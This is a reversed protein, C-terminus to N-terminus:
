ADCVGDSCTKRPRFPALIRYAWDLPRRILYPRTLTALIHWGPLREWIALFADWGTVIEGDPLRVHLAALAAERDIDDPIEGTCDHLVILHAGHRAYRGMESRCIPCQGDYYATVPGAPIEPMVDPNAM